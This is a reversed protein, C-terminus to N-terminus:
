KCSQEGCAPTIWAIAAGGPEQLMIIRGIDPIDFAPRMVKAGLEVAKTVRADVDDVAIYSLWGEPVDDCGQGRLDFIGGVARDGMKVIWYTGGTEMPFAEFSWGLAAAYFTKAREPDHTTLENWHFTGHSWPMPKDMADAAPAIGPAFMRELKDLSGSWGFRHRDRAAEDFFQEHILTLMVGDGDPKIVITVLSEREPMTRWAWTFQLRENPVVERYVGSVSHHEGDETYFEIAYRGGTRVDTDARIVKGSDPGFWRVIQAPQTWANYVKEPTANLHRKLTLSPKAIVGPSAVASM